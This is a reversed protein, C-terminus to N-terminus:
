NTFQNLFIDIANRDVHIDTIIESNILSGLDEIRDRQLVPINNSEYFGDAREDISIIITRMDNQLAFIGGHLRTGIYDCNKQITKFRDLSYIYTVDPDDKKLLTKLYAEDDITQIWAYFNNYNSFICELMKRDKIYDIQDSFGSVSFIVNDQKTRPIRECREQNFGWLTPCGTNIAKLGLSEVLEKTPEDRVSHIYENSLIKKYLNITYKNDFSDYNSDRGVGVLVSGEYIKANFSNVWFQPRIHKLNSM